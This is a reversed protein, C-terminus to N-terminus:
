CYEPRFLEVEVGASHCVHIWPSQPISHSRTLSENCTIIKAQQIPYPDHFVQGSVLRGKHVAYFVRPEILFFDLSGPEAIKVEQEVTLCIDSNAEKRNSQYRIQDVQSNVSMTAYHYALGVTRRAIQCALWGNADLSFFWIGPRGQHTVYTRVNTEDFNSVLPVSPFGRPRAQAIQFPVLGIWAKGDFTDIQLGPPLLEQIADPEHSSHLFSLNQWRHRMYLPKDPRPHLALYADLNEM